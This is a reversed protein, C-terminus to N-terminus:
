IDPPYWLYRDRGRWCYLRLDDREEQVEAFDEPIRECDNSTCRFRPLRRWSRIAADSFRCSEAGTSGAFAQLEEKKLPGSREGFPHVQPSM